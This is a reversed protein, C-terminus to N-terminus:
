CKFSSSVDSVYTKAPDNTNLIQLTLEQLTCLEQTAEAFYDHVVEQLGPFEKKNPFSALDCLEKANYGYIHEHWHTSLLWPSISRQDVNSRKRPVELAKAMQQRAYTLPSATKSPLVLPPPQVRFLTRCPGAHALSFRQMPYQSFVTPCHQIPHKQTYHDQLHKKNLSLQTCITCAYGELIKIGAFPPSARQRLTTCPPFPLEKEVGMEYIANELQNSDV